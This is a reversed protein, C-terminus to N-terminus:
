REPLLSSYMKGRHSQIAIDRSILVGRSGSVMKLFLPYPGLDAYDKSVHGSQIIDVFLSLLLPVLNAWTEGERRYLPTSHVLFFSYLVNGFAVLNNLHEFNYRIITLYTVSLDKKLIRSLINYIRKFIPM